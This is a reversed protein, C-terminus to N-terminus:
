EESVQQTFERGSNEVLNIRMSDQLYSSGITILQDGPQLGKEVVVRNQYSAGLTVPRESAIRQGHQNESATYVVYGNGKQYVFEEGVILVNQQQLTRLRVNAIMDIKYNREGKLIAIEIKFTRAQPEISGAVFTIAGRLTDSNQTDFWIKAEDGPQVADAYRAPVGAEIKVQDSAILRVVPASQGAMEGEEVIIEELVADFPARVITNELDVNVAELASKSQVYSTRANIVDLESGISNEEFVRSLREYQERAQETQAELRAKEQLLKQDDIKVIAEGKNVTEGEDVLYAVIRGSVQSALRVDSAAKVTGILQLYQSFTDPRMEMTEVNVTKVLEQDATEQEQSCGVVMGSILISILVYLKEM